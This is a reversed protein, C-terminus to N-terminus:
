LEVKGNWGRDTLVKKMWEKLNKQKGNNMGAKFSNVVQEKKVPKSLGNKLTMEFSNDDPVKLTM